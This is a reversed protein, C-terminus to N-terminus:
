IGLSTTAIFTVNNVEEIAGAALAGATLRLLRNEIDATPAEAISPASAFPSGSPNDDDSAARRFHGVDVGRELIELAGDVFVQIGTDTYPIKRGRNTAKLLLGAFKEFLRAALWDRTVALDVPTGDGLTGNGTAGQSALTLYVNGNKSLINTKETTTLTSAPAFGTVTAHRWITTEQDPDVALRSAMWAFSLAEANTAHYMIAANRNSDTRLESMIDGVGAPVYATDKCATESSQGIFLKGNAAAFDAALSQSAQVRSEIDFGYWEDNEAQIATLAATWSEVGDWRGAALREPKPSQSFGALLADKTFTDLDADDSVDDSSEYFRIRETFGIGQEGAMLSTGFGAVPVPPSELRVEVSIVNDFNAM